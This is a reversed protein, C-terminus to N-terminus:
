WYDGCSCIGNKFHHFRNTDRMVIEREVIKSIFKMATHCDGCVRLNKVVRIPSGLPTSILGFAVALKESHYSLFNEKQEEEVDHLVFNTDPVYGACKMLMTLEELKAYIQETCPHSRDRVYFTHMKNKVEIWSCGPEKVVGKDKMMNRIKEVDNWKGNTAYMNSLLVYTSSHKPNVKLICEAAWEALELNGHIRCAGLLSQWVLTSPPFPIDAIFKQAAVLEGSRGLIDVMCAYHEMEPKIGYVQTMSDFHYCGEDVLGMNSCASLVCLFTVHNPQIGEQQMQKFLELAEKGQGHQAYGGIMATWSITNREPMRNFVKHSETLNGCKAYMDVLSTGVVVCAEQRAKVIHAHIQKGTELTALIICAQLVSTFTFQDPEIRLGLMEFFLKLTSASHENHAYGILMANWTVLNRGPLKEFMLQASQISRCKAYLGVLASGIFNDLEAGMKIIEGHIAEGHKLAGITACASLISAFSFHDPKMGTRKMQCFIELMEREQGSHAYGAVIANWSVINRYSLSHFLEQADVMNKSKAYADVLASGVFVDSLFGKKIVDAHIFKCHKPLDLSACCSLISAFTYRDPNLGGRRMTSFLELAKECDGNQDYMAIMTNWTVVNREGMGEFVKQADEVAGCKAYLDILASGVFVDLEVGSDVIYKHIEGGKSLDGISACAKLVSGLTFENPEVAIQQMKGYFELAEEYQGNRVCAAIIGNWSVLNRDTMKDFVQCADELVGCEAYMNVLNNWIFTAFNCESKIMRAHVQKGSHLARTQSCSQLLHVWEEDTNLLITPMDKQNKNTKLPAALISVGHHHTHSTLSTSCIPTYALAVAM